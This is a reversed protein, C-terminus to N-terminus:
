GPPRPRGKGGVPEQGAPAPAGPAADAPTEEGPVKVGLKDRVYRPMLPGMWSRLWISEIKITARVVHDDGFYFGKGLEAAIDVESLDIDVVTMLNSRSIADMFEPLRASSVICRISADRVDYQDNTSSTLRGTISVRPDFPAMGGVGPVDQPGQNMGGGGFPNDAEKKKYVNKPDALTMKEIRKVVSQEVGGGPNVLRVANLIDAIVWLDWQDIFAEVHQVEPRDSEMSKISSLTPVARGEAENKPLNALTAYVSIQRSTQQYAGLRREGMLKAIKEEEDKTLQRDGTRTKDIQRQREEAISAQLATRDPPPGANISRLLEAYPSVHPPKGAITDFFQRTKEELEDPAGKLGPFLGEVMVKHETRGVKTAEEGVGRNFDEAKKIVETAQSTVRDKLAKFQEIMTSNPQYTRKEPPHSPDPIAVEYNFTSRSKVQQLKEEGDKQQKERLKNNMGTSFFWAVPLSILIVAICVVAIVNKKVWEMIPKV